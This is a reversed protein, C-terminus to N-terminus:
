TPRRSGPERPQLNKSPLPQGYLYGQAIGCGMEALMDRQAATEVGEAVVEVNLDKCLSLTSRVIAEAHSDAEIGSIFAKDIKVKSFPFTKLTSLSSYGTGYDDMTISVGIQRLESVIKLAQDKDAIIGTETIEIELRAPPLAALALARKVIGPFDDNALQRPSVNVAIKRPISWSAAEKCAEILVWEGIEEILGDREALPIFINPSIDGRTPHKWRLLAEYGVIRGDNVSNQRQFALELQRKKLAQRIDISLASKARNPEDISTVYHVSSKAGLRWARSLALDSKVVIESLVQGDAPYSAVGVVIGPVLVQDNWVEEIGIVARVIDSARSAKQDKSVVLLVVFRDESVRASALFPWEKQDVFCAIRRLIAEGADHGYVDVINRYNSIGLSVVRICDQSQLSPLKKQLGARNSLGTLADTYALRELEAFRESLHQRDLILVACAAALVLGGVVVLTAFVFQSTVAAQLVVTSSSTQWTIGRLALEQPVIIAGVMLVSAIFPGYSMRSYRIYFAAMSIASAVFIALPLALHDAKVALHYDVATISSVHSFLIALTVCGGSLLGLNRNALSFSTAACCLIISAALSGFTHSLVFQEAEVSSLGLVILFHAIWVTTGLLSGSLLAWAYRVTSNYSRAKGIMISVIISSVATFSVATFAYLIDQSALM